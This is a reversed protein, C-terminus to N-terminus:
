SWWEVTVNRRMYVEKMAVKLMAIFPPDATDDDDSALLERLAENGATRIAEKAEVDFEITFDCDAEVKAVFEEFEKYEVELPARGDSGDDGVCHLFTTAELYESERRAGIGMVRYDRYDKAGRRRARRKGGVEFDVKLKGSAISLMGKAAEHKMDKSFDVHTKDSKIGETLYSKMEDLDDRWLGLLTAGKGGFRLRVVKLDDESLPAKRGRRKRGGDNGSGQDAKRPFLVVRGDDIVGWGKAVEDRPDRCYSHVM